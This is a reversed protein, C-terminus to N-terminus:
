PSCAGFRLADHSGRQCRLQVPGSRRPGRVGAVDPVSRHCVGRHFHWEPGAEFTMGRVDCCTRRAGTAASCLRPNALIPDLHRESRSSLRQSSRGCVTPRVRPPTAAPWMVSRIRPTIM